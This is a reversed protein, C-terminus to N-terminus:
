LHQDLEAVESTKKSRLFEQVFFGIAASVGSGLLTVLVSRLSDSYASELNRVPAIASGKNVLSMGSQQAEILLTAEKGPPVSLECQRTQDFGDTASSLHVEVVRNGSPVTLSKSFTESRKGLIEYFKKPSGSIHDSYITKGDISVSIDASRLAHRCILNLTASGTLSTYVALSILVISGILLAARAKPPIMRVVRNFSAKATDLLISAQSPKPKQIPTDLM